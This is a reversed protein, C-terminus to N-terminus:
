TINNETMEEYIDQIFYFFVEKYYEFKLFFKCYRSTLIM